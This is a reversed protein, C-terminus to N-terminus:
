RKHSTCIYIELRLGAKKRSSTWPFFCIIRSLLKRQTWIISNSRSLPNSSSANPWPAVFTTLQHTMRHGQRHRNDSHRLADFDLSSPAWDPPAKKARSTHDFTPKSQPNLRIATCVRTQEGKSCTTYYQCLTLCNRKSDESIMPSTIKRSIITNIKSHTNTHTQTHKHTLTQTHTHTHTNRHNEKNNTSKKCHILLNSSKMSLHFTNM